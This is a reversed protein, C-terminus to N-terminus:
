LEHILCAIADATQQDTKVPRLNRSLMHLVRRMSMTPSRSPKETRRRYWHVGSVTPSNLTPQKTVPSVGRRNHHASGGSGGSMLAQRSIFAGHWGFNHRLM